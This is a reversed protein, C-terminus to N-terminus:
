SQVALIQLGCTQSQPSPCVFSIRGILYEKQNLMKILNGAATFKLVAHIKDWNTAQFQDLTVDRQM